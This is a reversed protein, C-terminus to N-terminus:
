RKKKDKPEKLKVQSLAEFFTEASLKGTSALESIKEVLEPSGENDEDAIPDFHPCAESDWPFRKEKVLHGCSSFDQKEIIAELYPEFEPDRLCIANDSYARESPHSYNCNGCDKALEDM